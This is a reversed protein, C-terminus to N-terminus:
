QTVCSLEFEKDNLSIENAAKVTKEILFEKRGEARFAPAITSLSGELIGDTSFFAVGVAWVGDDIEGYSTAYGKSRISEIELVLDEQGQLSLVRSQKILRGIMEQNLYPLMCKASAGRLLPLVAGKTFSYRLPYRSEVADICVSHSRFPVVLAITEGTSTALEHMTPKYRFSSSIQAQYAAELQVCRPGLIYAGEADEQIMGVAKLTAIYRYITSLPVAFHQSLQKVTRSSHGAFYFLMQLTRDATELHQSSM